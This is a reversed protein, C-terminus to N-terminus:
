SVIEIQSQFQVDELCSIKVGNVELYFGRKEVKMYYRVIALDEFDINYCFKYMRNLRENFQDIEYALNRIFTDLNKKSSFKFVREGVAQVYPSDELRWYIKESERTMM